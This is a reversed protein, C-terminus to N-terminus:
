SLKGAGSYDVSVLFLGRAPATPGAQTRDKSEFIRQFEGADIRGRGALAVTGVINRVMHKLFGEGQFHLAAISGENEEPHFSDEASLPGLLGGLGLNGALGAAFDRLSVRHLAATQLTRVSTKATSDAAKFAAFDHRGVLKELCLGMEDWELDGFIRWTFPALFAHPTSSNLIFYSYTKLRAGRQADFSADVEEVSLVSINDPLHDNLARRLTDVDMGHETRLHAVQALAHVGADTRGSGFLVTKQHFLKELIEEFVGQITRGNPQVQWGHYSGGIYQILLKLTRMLFLKGITAGVLAAKAEDWGAFVPIFILKYIKM